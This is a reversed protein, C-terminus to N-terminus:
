PAISRLSAAIKSVPTLSRREALAALVAPADKATV